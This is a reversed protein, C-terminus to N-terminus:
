QLNLKMWDTVNKEINSTGWNKGSVEIVIVKDSFNLRSKIGDRLDGANITTKIFWVNTMPRAWYDATKLYSILAKYSGDSSFLLNLIVIYNKM